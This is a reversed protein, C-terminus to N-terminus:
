SSHSNECSGQEQRLGEYYAFTMGFITWIPISTYPLELILLFNAAVLWNIIIACLFIGVLSKMSVFEKIMKLLVLFVIVIFAIGALGLRYIIHLYSNHAPIWGDLLWNVTGWNLIELSISRLPKGFSFGFVPKKVLLEVFMDRWIFLRFLTNADAGELSRGTKKDVTLGDKKGGFMLDFIENVESKSIKLGRNIIEEVVMEELTEQVEDAGWEKSEQRARKKVEILPIEQIIDKILLFNDRNKLINREDFNQNNKSSQKFALVLDKRANEIIQDKNAEFLRRNSNYVVVHHLDKREFKEGKQKIQVDYQNFERLIKKSNLLSVLANRDSLQTFGLVLFFVGFCVILVGSVRKKIFIFPVLLVLLLISIFNSVMMMRAVNFFYKYPTGFFLLALFLVKLVKNSFHNALICILLFCTLLWYSNFMPSKMLGMILVGLIIAIKQNILKKEFFVYGFLAFLPYYFLAAHRLALPGWTFYGLLVKVIIILVYLCLLSNWKNRKPVTKEGSLFVGVFCILCLFFLIEGIFIPFSLFSLQLNIEAFDSGGLVYGITVIGIGVLGSFSYLDKNKKILNM